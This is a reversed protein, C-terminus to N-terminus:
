FGTNYFNSDIPVHLMDDNVIFDSLTGTRANLDGLIIIEGLDSFTIIDNELDGFADGDNMYKSDIPPFYVGCIFIDYPLSFYFRSLKIWIKRPDKKIISVGSKINKNVLISLGGSHRKANLSKNRLVNHCIFDGINSVDKSFWTENLILIDINSIADTFFSDKMKVSTLSNVNWSAINFLRKMNNFHKTTKIFTSRKSGLNCMLVGINEFSSIPHLM